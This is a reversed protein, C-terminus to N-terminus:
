VILPEPSIFILWKELFRRFFGSKRVKSLKLMFLVNLLAYGANFSSYVSKIRSATRSIHFNAKLSKKAFFAM